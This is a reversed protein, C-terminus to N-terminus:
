KVEYNYLFKGKGGVFLNFHQSNNSMYSISFSGTGTLPFGKHLEGNSNILYLKEAVIDTIGVKHNTSSFMYYSPEETINNEFKYNM